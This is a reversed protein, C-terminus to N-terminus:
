GQETFYSTLLISKSHQHQLILNACRGEGKSSSTFIPIATLGGKGEGTEQGKREIQGGGWARWTKVFTMFLELVIPGELIIGTDRWGTKKM